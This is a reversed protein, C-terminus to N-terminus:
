QIAANSYLPSSSIATFVTKNNSLDAYSSAATNGGIVYAAFYATNTTSYGLDYFDSAPINKSYTTSNVGTNIVYSTIQNSTLSNVTTNGPVGIFVIVSQSYPAAPLTGKIRIYNITNITTDYTTFTTVNNTPIKSINVNRYFDGGGTFQLSQVKNLGYGARKVTLNYVGTALGSFSYLGNADTVAAQSTGDISVTDGALNTTMKSGSIDYHNIFGKLNGSLVPGSSGQPGAPGETTTKKCSALNIAAAIVGIFLLKSKMIYKLQVFILIYKM